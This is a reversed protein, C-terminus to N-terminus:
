LHARKILALYVQSIVLSVEVAYLAVKGYAFTGIEGFTGGVKNKCDVLLIFGYGTLFGIIM